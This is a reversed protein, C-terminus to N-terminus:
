KYEESTGYGVNYETASPKKAIVKNIYEIIEKLSKKPFMKSLMDLLITLDQFSISNHLIFKGYSVKARIKEWGMQKALFIRHFGNNVYLVDPYDIDRSVPIAEYTDNLMEEKIKEFREEETKLNPFKWHIGDEEQIEIKSFDVDKEFMYDHNRFHADAQLEKYLREVSFFEEQVKVAKFGGMFRRHFEKRSLIM